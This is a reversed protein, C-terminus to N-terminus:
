LQLMSHRATLCFRSSTVNAQEDPPYSVNQMLPVNYKILEEESNKGVYAFFHAQTAEDGGKERLTSAIEEPSKM